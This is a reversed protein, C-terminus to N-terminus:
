LWQGTVLECPPTAATGEAEGSEQEEKPVAWPLKSLKALLVSFM